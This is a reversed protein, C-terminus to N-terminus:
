PVGCLICRRASAGAIDFLRWDKVPRTKGRFDSHPDHYGFLVAYDYLRRGFDALRFGARCHERQQGDGQLGLHLTVDVLLLELTVPPAYSLGVKSQHSM